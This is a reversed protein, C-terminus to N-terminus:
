HVDCIPTLGEGERAGLVTSEWFGKNQFLLLYPYGLGFTEKQSSKPNRVQVMCGRLGPLLAGARRWCHGAGSQLM